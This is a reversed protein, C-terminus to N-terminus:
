NVCLSLSRGSWRKSNKKVPKVLILVAHKLYRNDAARAVGPRLQQSQERSVRANFQLPNGRPGLGPAGHCIQKRIQAAMDIQGEGRGIVGGQGVGIHNKERGRVVDGHAAHGAQQPRSGPDDIQGGIKANAVGRQPLAPVALAVGAGFQQRLGDVAQRFAMAALDFRRLQHGAGTTVRRRHLKPKHRQQGRSQDISARQDGAGGGPHAPGTTLGPDIGQQALGGVAEFGVRDRPVAMQGLDLLAQACCRTFGYRHGKHGMQRRHNATQM